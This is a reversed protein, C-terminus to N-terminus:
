VIDIRICIQHFVNKATTIFAGLFIYLLSPLAYFASCLTLRFRTLRACYSVICQIILKLLLGFHTSIIIIKM